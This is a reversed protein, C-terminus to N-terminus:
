DYLQEIREDFRRQLKRTVPGIEYARGDVSTVPRIEWTSNTVFLETADALRDPEYAGTEVPIGAEDALELVINRTIGPLLPVSESPTHLTEGEVFFLNSTAGEALLGDVSQVIAEDADSERLELRALISNLYNHTKAGAPLASDPVKRQEVTRLTAPDDWVRSGDIGGRPLPSVFVVITPDVAPNPTLKGPQVGRTVSLKTYADTLENAALTEEIRSRLDEEGPLADAFGLMECSERLRDAHAEWEFIEGGYVRMTEFAADGYMFGRDRVSVTAESEPVLEGDVHYQLESM